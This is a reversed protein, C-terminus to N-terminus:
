RKKFHEGKKKRTRKRYKGEREREYRASSNSERYYFSRNMTSSIGASILVSSLVGRINLPAYDADFM